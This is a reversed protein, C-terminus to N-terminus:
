NRHWQALRDRLRAHRFQYASGATRLVGREHADEIFLKPRWPLRRTLPLWLRVFMVWTGWASFTLRVVGALLAFPLLAPVYLAFNRELEPGFRYLTMVAFVTGILIVAIAMRILTIKRDLNLLTWPDTAHPDYTDGLASVVFNATGLVIGLASGLALGYGPGFVSGFVLGLALGFLLGNNFESALKRLPASRSRPRRDQRPARLHLREPQRRSHWQSFQRENILGSALGTAPGLAIGTLIGDRLGDWFGHVIGDVMGTLLGAVLGTVFGVASTVIATTFLIRTQRNLTSPVQWWTLDHTKRNQLHTALHGLWRRAQDPTWNPRRGNRPGPAQRTYVSALYADLLHDQLVTTTPFRAIDLLERPDRNPGDDNYVTRTLMVMLPTTLVSAVSRSTPEEPATRLQRFVADWAPARLKSTNQRLYRQAQDLTLDELQVAAAGGIPRVRRAAEAYQEPRSTVVLPLDLASIQKVADRYRMEPLEDFGDLVPLVLGRDVFVEALRKGTTSDKTDLFPFDRVLRGTLWSALDTEPDWDSLSFLVPVPGTHPAGSDEILDLILRHALVTKGAGARGLIILRRSGVAEFTTLISGFQGALSVPEAGDQASEGDDVLEPAAADWRVPLADQGRIGWSRLEKASLARVEGALHRVTSALEGAAVSLMSIDGHMTGIQLNTRIM